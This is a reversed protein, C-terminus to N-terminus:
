RRAPVVCESPEGIVGPQLVQVVTSGGPCPGSHGPVLVAVVKVAADHKSCAVPVPSFGHSSAQGGLKVLCQGDLAEAATIDQPGAHRPPRTGQWIAVAVILVAVVIPVVRYPSRMPLRAAM